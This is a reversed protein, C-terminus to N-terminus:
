GDARGGVRRGLYAEIVAPDAMVTATTGLALRQGFNLVLVRDALAAVARMVHEVWIVTTGLDDRLGGIVAISARLETPNLGAMVEDLLLVRPRGALARGLEVTRKEHATLTGVPQSGKARLGLMELMTDAAHVADPASLRGGTRGFMAGLAVNDRTSMADFMRPTQLVTAIGHRRVQDPTRGAIDVGDFVITGASPTLQGSLLRLLTSKGAGNPGIVAFVERPEIALDVGDVAPVGGFRRSLGRTELLAM